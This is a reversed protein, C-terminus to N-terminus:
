QLSRFLEWIPTPLEGDTFVYVSSYPCPATAGTGIDVYLHGTQSAFASTISGGSCKYYGSDHEDKTIKTEADDTFTWTVDEVAVKSLGGFCVVETSGRRITITFTALNRVSLGYISVSSITYGACTIAFRVRAVSGSTPPCTGTGLWNSRCSTPSFGSSCQADVVALAIGYFFWLFLQVLLSSM